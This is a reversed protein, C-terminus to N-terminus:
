NLLHCACLRHREEESIPEIYIYVYPAARTESV